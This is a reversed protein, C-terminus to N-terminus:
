GMPSSSRALMHSRSCGSAAQIAEEASWRGARQNMDACGSVPPNSPNTLPSASEKFVKREGHETGTWFPLTQNQASNLCDGLNIRAHQHLPSVAQFGVHGDSRGVCCAEKARKFQDDSSAPSKECAVSTHNVEGIHSCSTKSVTNPGISPSGPRWCIRLVHTEWASLCGFDESRWAQAVARRIAWFLSGHSESVCRSSPVDEGHSTPRRQLAITSWGVRYGHPGFM